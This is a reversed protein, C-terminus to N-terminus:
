DLIKRMPQVKLGRFNRVGTTKRYGLSEYFLTAYLSSRIVIEGFGAARCDKEFRDMLQTGIGQRHSKGSVFLNIVRNDFGRVVGVIRSDSRAVYCIPSRSFQGHLEDLSKGRPDFHKVYRAVADRTGESGNFQAYTRSILRAIKRADERRYKRVAVM